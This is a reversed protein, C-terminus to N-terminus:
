LGPEASDVSSLADSEAVAHSLEIAERLDAPRGTREHRRSLAAALHFLASSHGQGETTVAVIERRVAVAEDVDSLDATLDFRRLLGDALDSQFQARRPDRRATAALAARDLEIAEDLDAPLGTLEFRRFLAMGLVHLGTARDAQGEITDQRFLSIARELHDLQGTREHERMLEIGTDHPSALGLFDRVEPSVLRPDVTHLNTYLARALRLDVEGHEPPLARYRCLHLAAVRMISGADPAGLATLEAVLALAQEDLVGSSDGSAHRAIRADLDALLRQKM